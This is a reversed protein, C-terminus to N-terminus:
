GETSEGDDDGALRWKDNIYQEPPLGEDLYGRAEIDPLEQARRKWDDHSKVTEVRTENAPTARPSVMRGQVDRWELALEYLWRPFEREDVILQRLLPPVAIGEEKCYRECDHASVQVQQWAWAKQAYKKDIAKSLKAAAHKPLSFLAGVHARRLM